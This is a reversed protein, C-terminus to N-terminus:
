VHKQLKDIHKRILYIAVMCYELYQNNANRDAWHQLEKNLFSINFQKRIQANKFREMIYDYISSRNRKLTDENLNLIEEIEKELAQNGDKTSITGDASYKFVNNWGKDDLRVHQLEEHGKRSDCTLRDYGHGENGMCAIYLNKYNLTLDAKGNTGNYTKQPKFHEIKCNSETVRQMCYCCIYGQSELLATRLAVKAETTINAYTAGPISRYVKFKAPEANKEIYKM